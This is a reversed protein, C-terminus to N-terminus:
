AYRGGALATILAAQVSAAQTIPALYMAALDTVDSLSLTALVTDRELPDPMTVADTAQRLATAASPETLVALLVANIVAAPDPLAPQVPEITTRGEHGHIAEVSAIGRDHFAVSTPWDSTWRLAATGDSFEIGEAVIGTGSVGSVDEHRRLLFLRPGTM